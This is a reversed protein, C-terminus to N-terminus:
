VLFQASVPVPLRTTREPSLGWTRTPTKDGATPPQVGVSVSAWSDGNDLTWSPCRGRLVAGVPVTGRLRPVTGQRMAGTRGVTWTRQCTAIRCCRVHWRRGLFSWTGSGLKQTFITRLSDLPDSTTGFDSDVFSGTIKCPVENSGMLVIWKQVNLITAPTTTGNVTWGGSFTLGGHWGADVFAPYNYTYLSM